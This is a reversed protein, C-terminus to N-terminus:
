HSPRGAQQILDLVVVETLSYKPETWGTWTHVESYKLTGEFVEFYLIGEAPKGSTQHDMMDDRKRSLTRGAM